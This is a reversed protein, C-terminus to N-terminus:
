KHGQTRLVKRQNHPILADDILYETWQTWLWYAKKVWAKAQIRAEGQAQGGWKNDYLEVGEVSQLHLAFPNDETTLDSLSTKSEIDGLSHVLALGMILM